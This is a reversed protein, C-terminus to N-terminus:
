GERGTRLRAAGNRPRRPHGLVVGEAGALSAVLGGDLGHRPEDLLGTLKYWPYTPSPVYIRLAMGRRM